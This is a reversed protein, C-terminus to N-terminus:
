VPDVHIKQAAVLLSGGFPFRTGLGILGREIDLVGGLVANTARGVNLEASPDYREDVRRHRARAAWMLPLLLSVFSTVLVPRFGAAALRELVEGRRYRRVHGAYQDAASWLFRHQPVTLILGGGSRLALFCQALVAADDAVHELVDFCGVVDFTGRFPIHVADMQLLQARRVRRAAQELGAAHMEGGLAAVEPFASEVAGLVCGTGCGVELYSRMRPFHRRLAWVILRNRSQFWYNRDELAALRAFSARPFGGTM